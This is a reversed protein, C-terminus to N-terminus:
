GDEAEEQSGGEDGPYRFQRRRERGPRNSDVRWLHRGLRRVERLDQWGLLSTVLCLVALGAVFYLFGAPHVKPDIWNVAVFCLVGLVMLLVATLRRRWRSWRSAVLGMREIAPGGFWGLQKLLYYGGVGVGLILMALSWLFQAV